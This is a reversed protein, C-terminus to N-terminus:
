ARTSTSRRATSQTRMWVPRFRIRSFGNSATSAGANAFGRCAATTRFPNTWGTARLGVFRWIRRGRRMLKRDHVIGEFFGALMLRLASEPDISPRGNDQCYCEHVADHLWSFDLVRDVRKLLHNDLALDQLSSVVFLDEQWRDKKAQM